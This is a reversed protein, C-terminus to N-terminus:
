QGTDSAQVPRQPLQPRLQQPHLHVYFIKLRSPQGTQRGPLGPNGHALVEAARGRVERQAADRARCAASRQSAAWRWCRRPARGRARSPAERNCSM